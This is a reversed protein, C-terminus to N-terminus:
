VGSRFPNFMEPELGSRAITAAFPDGLIGFPDSMGGTGGVNVAGSERGTIAQPRIINLAQLLQESPLFSQRAENQLGQTVQPLFSSLIQSILQGRRGLLDGELSSAERGFAGSRLGGAARFTDTLATRARAEGPALAALAPGLITQLLPSQVGKSLIDQFSPLEQRSPIQGLAQELLQRFDPVVTPSVVSTGAPLGSPQGFITPLAM